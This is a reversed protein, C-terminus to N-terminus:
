SGISQSIEAEIISTFSDPNQTSQVFLQQSSQTILAPDVLVQANGFSPFAAGSPFLQFNNAAGLASINGGPTYSGFKPTAFGTGSAQAANLVSTPINNSVTLTSQEQIVVFVQESISPNSKLQRALYRTNSKGSNRNDIIETIV